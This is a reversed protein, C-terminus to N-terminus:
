IAPRLHKRSSQHRRGQWKIRRDELGRFVGKLGSELRIRIHWIDKRKHEIYIYKM